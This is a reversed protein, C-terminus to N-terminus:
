EFRETDTGIINDSLKNIFTFDISETIELKIDYHLGKFDYETGDHRKFNFTITSINSGTDPFFLDQSIYDDHSSEYYILDGPSGKFTIRKLISSDDNSLSCARPHLDNYIIDIYHLSLDIINTSTIESDSSGSPQLSSSKKFGLRKFLPYSIPDITIISSSGNKITINKTTTNYSISISHNNFFHSHLINVLSQIGYQGEEIILKISDSFGIVNHLDNDGKWINHPVYPIVASLLKFNVVNKFERLGSNDFSALEYTHDGRENTISSLHVITKIIKTPILEEILKEKYITNFSNLETYIQNFSTLLQNNSTEIRNILETINPLIEQKSLTNNNNTTIQPEILKIKPNLLNKIYQFILILITITSIGLIIKYNMSLNNLNM